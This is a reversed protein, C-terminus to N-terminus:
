TLIPFKEKPLIDTRGLLHLPTKKNLFILKPSFTYSNKEEISFNKPNPNIQSLAGPTDM